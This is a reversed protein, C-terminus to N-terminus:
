GSTTFRRFGGGPKRPAKEKREDSSVQKRLVSALSEGEKVEENTARKKPSSALLQLLSSTGGRLAQSEGERGEKPPLRRPKQKFKDISSQAM